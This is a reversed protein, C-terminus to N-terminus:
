QVVTFEGTIQSVSLKETTPIAYLYKGNGSYTTGDPFVINNYLETIEEEGYILSDIDAVDAPSFEFILYGADDDTTYVANPAPDLGTLTQKSIVTSLAATNAETYPTLAINYFNIGNSTTLTYTGASTLHRKVAVMGKGNDGGVSGSVATLVENYTSNSDCTITITRDLSSSSGSLFELELDMPSAIKFILVNGGGSKLRKTYDTGNYSQSNTEVVWAKNKATTSLQFHYDGVLAGPEYTGVDLSSTNLAYASSITELEHEVYLTITCSATDILDNTDDYLDVTVTATENEQASSTAKVTRSDGTGSLEINGTSSWQLYYGDDDSANERTATLKIGDENLINLEATEDLGVSPETSTKYVTIEIKQVYAHSGARGLTWKGADCNTKTVTGGNSASSDIVNSSSPSEGKNLTLQDIGKGSPATVSIDFKGKTTFTIASSTSSFKYANSEAESDGVGTITLGYITDGNVLDTLDLTYKVGDTANEATSGKYTDAIEPVSDGSLVTTDASNFNNAAFVGMSSLVMASAMVGAAVIAKTLFSKRM